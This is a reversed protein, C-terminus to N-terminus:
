DEEEEVPELAENLLQELTDYADFPQLIGPNPLPPSLPQTPNLALLILLLKM